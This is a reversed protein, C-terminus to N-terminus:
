PHDSASLLALHWHGDMGTRDLESLTYSCYPGTSFVIEHCKTVVYNKKRTIPLTDKGRGQGCGSPSM